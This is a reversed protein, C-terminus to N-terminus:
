SCLGKEDSVPSLKEGNSYELQNDGGLRLNLDRPLPLDDDTSKAVDFHAKVINSATNTLSWSGLFAAEKMIGGEDNVYKNEIRFEHDEFHFFNLVFGVPAHSRHCWTRHNLLQEVKTILQGHEVASAGQLAEGAECSAGAALLQALVAVARIRPTFPTMM